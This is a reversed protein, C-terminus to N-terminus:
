SEILQKISELLDLLIASLSKLPTLCIKYFFSPRKLIFIIPLLTLKAALDTMEGSGLRFVSSTPIGKNM